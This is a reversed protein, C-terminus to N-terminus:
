AAKAAPQKGHKPASKPTPKPVTPAVLKRPIWKHELIDQIFYLKDGFIHGEFCNQMCSNRLAAKECCFSSAKQVESVEAARVERVVSASVDPWAKMEGETNLSCAIPKAMDVPRCLIATATASSKTKTHNEAM